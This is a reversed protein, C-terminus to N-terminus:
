DTKFWKTGDTNFLDQGANNSYSHVSLQQGQSFGGGGGGVGIPIRRGGSFSGTFSSFFPM